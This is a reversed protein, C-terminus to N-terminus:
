DFLASIKRIEGQFCRVLASKILVWMNEDRFLVQFLLVRGNDYRPCIVRDFLSSIQGNINGFCIDVIDICMAPKTFIWQYKGFNDDTFSFRSTNSASLETLFQHFKGMLM